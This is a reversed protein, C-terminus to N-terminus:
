DYTNLFKVLLLSDGKSPVAAYRGISYIARKVVNTKLHIKKVLRSDNSVKEIVRSTVLRPLNDLNTNILNGHGFDMHRDFWIQFNADSVVIEQIDRTCRRMLKQM